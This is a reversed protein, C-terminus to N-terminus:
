FLPLPRGMASWTHEPQPEYPPVTDLLVKGTADPRDSLSPNLERLRMVEATVADRQEDNELRFIGQARQAVEQLPFADEGLDLHKKGEGCTLRASEVHCPWELVFVDQVAYLRQGDYDRSSRKLPHQKDATEYNSAHTLSLILGGGSTSPELSMWTSHKSTAGGSYHNDHYDRFVERWGRQVKELVVVGEITSRGYAIIHTTWRIMLLEEPVVWEVKLTSPDMGMAPDSYQDTGPVEKGLEIRSDPETLDLYYQTYSKPALKSAMEPTYGISDPFYGLSIDPQDHITVATLEYAPLPVDSTCVLVGLVVYLANM